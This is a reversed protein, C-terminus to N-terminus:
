VTTSEANKDEAIFTFDTLMISAGNRIQYKTVPLGNVIEFGMLTLQYNDHLKFYHSTGQPDISFTGYKGPTIIVFDLKYSSKSVLKVEYSDRLDNVNSM